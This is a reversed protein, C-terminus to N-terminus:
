RLIRSKFISLFAVFPAFATVIIRWPMTSVPQVCGTRLSGNWTTGDLASPFRTVEIFQDPTAKVLALDGEESLM